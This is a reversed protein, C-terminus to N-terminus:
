LTIEKKDSVMLGVAVMVLAALVIQTLKISEHLLFAGGIIAYMCSFANMLAVGRGLGHMTILRIQFPLVAIHAVLWCLFWWSGFAFILTNYERLKFRAFIDIASFALQILGISFLSRLSIM